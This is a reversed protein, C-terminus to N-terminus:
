RTKDKGTIHRQMIKIDEEVNSISNKLEKINL